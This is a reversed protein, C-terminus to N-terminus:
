LLGIGGTHRELQKMERLVSKVFDKNTEDEKQKMKMIKENLDDVALVPHRNQEFNSMINDLGAMLWMIDKSTEAVKYGEM